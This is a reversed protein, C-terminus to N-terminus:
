NYPIGFLKVDFDHKKLESIDFMNRADVIINGHMISKIKKIDLNAFEPWETMLILADADKIADYASSCYNIEPFEQQMNKMAAPDYAKINAGYNLLLKLTTIAPSYRIDDTNDKFALGLVAITINKLSLNTAELNDLSAGINKISMLELLKEVPKNKQIENAEIVAKVIKLDINNQDSSHVLAIIDKPFCSGGFGPGPKLFLPSIRKDLGLSYAVDKVNAGVADCYNSIENIFTLKTALFANTVYKITEATTINTLMYQSGNTVLPKYIDCMIDLAKKSDSGLVIRDPYLFDKVASGERLFEPNSVLDFMSNKIGSNTLLLRIWSGTGVPVTSKTCIIKYNNINISINSIVSEVYSLDAAGDDSMPTGVAIFIIDSKKIADEINNTFILRDLARNKDVLEKLGPEYIPIEGLNLKAIKNIDIDVCIVRNGCEALGAGTVLGVYGTGIVAITQNNLKNLQNDLQLTWSQFFLISFLLFYKSRNIKYIKIM